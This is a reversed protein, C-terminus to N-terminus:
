RQVAKGQCSLALLLLQPQGQIESRKGNQASIGFCDGSARGQLLSM